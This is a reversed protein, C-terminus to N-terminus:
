ETGQSDVRAAVAERTRDGRPLRRDHECQRLRDVCYFVYLYLEVPLALTAPLLLWHFCAPRKFLAWVGASCMLEIGRVAEPHVLPQGFLGAAFPTCSLLLYTLVVFLSRPAAPIVHSVSRPRDAVLAANDDKQWVSIQGRCLLLFAPYVAQTPLVVNERHKGM